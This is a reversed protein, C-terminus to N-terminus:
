LPGVSILTHAHRRTTRYRVTQLDISAGRLKNMSIQSCVHWWIKTTPACSHAHTATPTPHSECDVKRPVSGVKLAVPPCMSCLVDRLWEGEAGKCACGCVCV